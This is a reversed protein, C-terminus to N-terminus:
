LFPESTLAWLADRSGDEEHLPWSYMRAIRNQHWLALLTGVILGCLVVIAGTIWVSRHHSTSEHGVDLECTDPSADALCYYESVVVDADSLAGVFAATKAKSNSELRVITTGNCSSEHECLCFVFIHKQQSFGSAAALLATDSCRRGNEVCGVCRKDTNEALIRVKEFRAKLKEEEQVTCAGPVRQVM